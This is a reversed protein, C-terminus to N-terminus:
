PVSLKYRIIAKFRLLASSFTGKLINFDYCLTNWLKNLIIIFVIDLVFLSESIFLLNCIIRRVLLVYAFLVYNISIKLNRGSNKLLLFFCWSYTNTWCSSRRIKRWFSLHIYVLVSLVYKAALFISFIFWSLACMSFRKSFFHHM